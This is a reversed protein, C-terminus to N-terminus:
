CAAALLIPILCGSAELRRSLVTRHTREQAAERPRVVSPVATAVKLALTSVTAVLGNKRSGNLVFRQRVGTDPQKSHCSVGPPLCGQSKVARSPDRISVTALMHSSHFFLSVPSQSFDQAMIMAWRILEDGLDVITHRDEQLGRLEVMPQAPLHADLVQLRRRVVGQLPPGNRLPHVARFGVLVIRGENLSDAVRVRLGLAVQKSRRADATSQRGLLAYTQSMALIFGRRLPAKLRLSADAPM